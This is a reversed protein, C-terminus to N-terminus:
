SNKRTQAILKLLKDKSVAGPVLTEGVVFAPTGSIGLAQAMQRNRAIHQAIADSEMDTKLRDMDLGQDAAIELVRDETLRGRNEMLAVHVPMYKGQEKAALAAKAAFRSVPSLIPFEVFVMNLGDDEDAVDMVTPFVRKCYGCQYDFFEVFLVDGDPNGTRPYGEDEAFLVRAQALAESQQAKEASKQEAYHKELAKLIVDPNEQIYTEILAEVESKQQGSLGDEASAGTITLLPTLLVSLFLAWAARTSFLKM